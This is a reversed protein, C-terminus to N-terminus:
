RRRRPEEEQRLMMGEQQTKEDDATSVAGMECSQHQVMGVRPVYRETAGHLLPVADGCGM